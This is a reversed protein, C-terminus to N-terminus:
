PRYVSTFFIKLHEHSFFIKTFFKPVEFQKIFKTLEEKVMIATYCQGKKDASGHYIKFGAPTILDIDAINLHLENLLFIATNNYIKTLKDLKTPNATKLNSNLFDLNTLNGIKKNQIRRVPPNIIFKYPDDDLIDIPFKTVTSYLDNARQEQFKKFCSEKFPVHIGMARQYYMSKDVMKKDYLEYSLRLSELDNRIDNLFVIGDGVRIERHGHETFWNCFDDCTAVSPDFLDADDPSINGNESIISKNIANKLDVSINHHDLENYAQAYFEDIDINHEIEVDPEFKPLLTRNKETDNEASLFHSFNEHLNSHKQLMTSDYTSSIHSINQSFNKSSDYSKKSNRIDSNESKIPSMNCKSVECYNSEFSPFYKKLEETKKLLPLRQLYARTLFQSISFIRSKSQSLFPKVIKKIIM